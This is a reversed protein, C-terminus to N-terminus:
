GKNHSEPPNEANKIQADYLEIMRTAEQSGQRVSKKPGEGKFYMEQDISMM